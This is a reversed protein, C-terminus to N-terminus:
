GAAALSPRRVLAVYLLAVAIVALGLPIPDVGFPGGYRPSLEHIVSLVGIVLFMLLAGAVLALRLDRHRSAAAVAIVSLIASLGALVASLLETLLDM